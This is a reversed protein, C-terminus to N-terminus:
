SVYVGVSAFALDETLDELFSVMNPDALHFDWRPGFNNM